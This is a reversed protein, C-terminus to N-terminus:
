YLGEIEAKSPAEVTFWVDIKLECNADIPIRWYYIGRDKDEETPKPEFKIGTVKIDPNQSVPVQDVITCTIEKNHFNKITNEYLFEYKTIDKFLGGRSVKSKKLERKVKVREDIGFSVTTSEDPAITPIFVRGTFDNGVYTGGDGSLFLYDTTNKLIGTSYALQAIRPVIFYEFIADFSTESILIKKEPDGSKITYSGPLPYWISIGVEVPPAEAIVEEALKKAPQPAEAPLYAAAREAEVSPMYLDIYWPEPTPATGGYAPKATSLVIKTDDWDEGTRQGIKGFYSIDIKSGSPNGRIEYYTRWNAGYVIYDLEITYNQAIKPHADFFVAKRNEVIAKIDNLEQRLSNLREKLDTQLREIEATRMKTSILEEVLFRAAQRWLEPVIRGTYIEKSIIDGSGVAISGLFKEKDKMVALEDVMKREEIELIKIKAELEKVRLDAGKTYGKRIQVEGVKLDKAKVRVSLDDLAGPLNSFQIDAAKELFVNAIRSVLVRDSYVVVSDVKSNIEFGILLFLITFM